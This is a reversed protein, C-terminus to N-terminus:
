RKNSEKCFDEGNCALIRDSVQLKGSTAAFGESDMESIFVGLDRIYFLVCAYVYMYPSCTLSFSHRCTCVHIYQVHVTYPVIYM